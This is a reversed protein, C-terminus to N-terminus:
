RAELHARLAIEFLDGVQASDGGVLSGSNAGHNETVHGSFPALCAQGAPNDTSGFDKKRWLSNLLVDRLAVVEFGPYPDTRPQLLANPVVHRYWESKGARPLQQHGVVDFEGVCPVHSARRGHGAWRTHGGM